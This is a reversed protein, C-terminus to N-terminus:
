DCAVGDGDRDLDYLDTGIVYVPGRVYAPGNGSGGECDVDSAIPVCAGSYNPDCGAPAEQVPAPAPAPQQTGVATVAHIPATTIADSTISRATEKGDTLVVTYTITRVGPIGTVRVATTGVLMTPDEVTQEEFPVATTETLTTTKIVPTPTIKTPTPSSSPTASPSATAVLPVAQNDRNDGAASLPASVVLAVFSVATLIGAVKRSRVRFLEVRGRVLGYIGVGLSMMCLVALFSFFGGSLLVVLLIVAALGSFVLAAIRAPHTSTAPQM